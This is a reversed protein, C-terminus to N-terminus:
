PRKEISEITSITRFRDDAQLILSRNRFLCIHNEDVAEIKKGTDALLSNMLRIFFPGSLRIQENSRVWNYINYHEPAM